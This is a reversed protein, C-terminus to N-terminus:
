VSAHKTTLQERIYVAQEESLKAEVGNHMNSVTIRNLGKSVIPLLTISQWNECTPM